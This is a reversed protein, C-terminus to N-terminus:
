TEGYQVLGRRGLTIKLSAFIFFGVRGIPNADFEIIDDALFDKNKLLDGTVIM